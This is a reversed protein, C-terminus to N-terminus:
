IPPPVWGVVLFFMSVIRWTNISQSTSSSCIFLVHGNKMSAFSCFQNPTTWVLWNFDQMSSNGQIKGVFNAGSSPNKIKACPIPMSCIKHWVREAQLHTKTPTKLCGGFHHLFLLSNRSNLCFFSGAKQLHRYYEPIQSLHKIHKIRIRTTLSHNSYTLIPIEMFNWGKTFTGHFCTVRTTSDM